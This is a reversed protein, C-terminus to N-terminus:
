GPAVPWCTFALVTGTWLGFLRSMMVPQIEQKEVPLEDEPFALPFSSGMATRRCGTTWGFVIWWDGGNVGEGFVGRVAGGDAGDWLEPSQSVRGRELAALLEARIHEM